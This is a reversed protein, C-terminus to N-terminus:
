SQFMPLDDYAGSTNTKKARPTANIHLYKLSLDLGIFNRNSDRCVQGVTGSGCFPDLVIQPIPEADHDCQPRWGITNITNPIDRRAQGYQGHQGHPGNGNVKRLPTETTETVRTWAKGCIPCEGRQSTGSLVMPEVLAPPFTAYHAGSYPSTAVTWVSRRNRGTRDEDRHFTDAGATRRQGSDYLEVNKTGNAALTSKASNWTYVSNEKISENDFYYRARKTLLFVYEHAKTCRDTVSEPMPNPKHWIIDQRLYWGYDQLAFAVRWPIGVLDKPKLGDPCVLKGLNAGVNTEQKAGIGSAGNGRNAAYSDGLNLWLVGDDKLVRWCERMVAVISAVYEQPTKEAGIELHKNDGTNYSRLGWYPPSTVVCQVSNDALPIRRSDANILEIM